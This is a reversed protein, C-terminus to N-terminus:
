RKISIVIYFTFIVIIAIVALYEMLKLVGERFPTSVVAVTEKRQCYIM